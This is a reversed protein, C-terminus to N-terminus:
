INNEKILIKIKEWIKPDKEFLKYKEIEELFYKELLGFSLEDLTSINKMSTKIINEYNGIYSLNILNVKIEVGPICYQESSSQIFPSYPLFLYEEESIDTYNIYNNLYKNDNLKISYFDKLKKFFEKREDINIYPILKRLFIPVIGNIFGGINANIHIIKLLPM